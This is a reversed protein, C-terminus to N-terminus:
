VEWTDPLIPYPRLYSNGPTGLTLVQAPADNSTSKSLMRDYDRKASDANLGKAELFALRLGAILLRHDFWCVDDSTTVEDQGPGDQAAAQVWWHTQFEFAVERDAPTAEPLVQLQENLLRLGLSIPAVALAKEAEWEKASLPGRLPQRLTLDWTTSNRLYGFGDPLPYASTDAVTTFTGVRTLHTWDREDWLSQGLEELLACLQIFNKNTSTFPDDVPLLGVRLATRNIIHGATKWATVTGHFLIPFSLPFLPM